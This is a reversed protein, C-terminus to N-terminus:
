LPLHSWRREAESLIKALADADRSPAALDLRVRAVACSAHAIRRARVQEAFTEGTPPPSADRALLVRALQEARSARASCQGIAARAASLAARQSEAVLNVVGSATRRWPADTPDVAGADGVRAQMEVRADDAAWFFCTGSAIAATSRGPTVDVDVNASVYRFVGLPTVVWEEAQPTDAGARTGEFRGAGIWSESRRDVCGRAVGPGLFTTERLNRPDELVVRAAEALDLWAGDRVTDEAALRAESGADAHPDAALHVEGDVAIARCSLNAPKPRPSPALGRATSGAGASTALPGSADVGAPRTSPAGRCGCEVVFCALEVVSLIVATAVSGRM